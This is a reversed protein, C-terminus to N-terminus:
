ASKKRVVPQVDKEEQNAKRAAEQIHLIKVKIRRCMEEPPTSRGQGYNEVLPPAITHFERVLRRVQEGETSSLGMESVFKDLFEQPSLGQRTYKNYLVQVDKVQPEGAVLPMILGTADDIDKTRTLKLAEAIAEARAASIRRSPLEQKVYHAFLLITETQRQALNTDAKDWLNGGTHFSMDHALTVGTRACPLVNEEVFRRLYTDAGWEAEIPNGSADEKGTYRFELTLQEDPPLFKNLAKLARNFEKPSPIELVHGNMKFGFFQATEPGLATIVWTPDGQPARGFVRASSGWEEKIKTFLHIKGGHRGDRVNLEIKITQESSVQSLSEAAFECTVIALSSFCPYSLSLLVLIRGLGINV